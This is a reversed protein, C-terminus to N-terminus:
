LRAIPLVQEVDRWTDVIRLENSLAIPPHHIDSPRFTEHDHWVRVFAPPVEFHDVERVPISRQL